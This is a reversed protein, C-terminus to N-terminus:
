LNKGLQSYGSPNPWHGGRQNYLSYDPKPEYFQDELGVLEGDQLWSLDEEYLSEILYNRLRKVVEAYESSFALNFREEPDSKLNFLQTYHGVPYYILKYDGERNMRSATAGEGIQGYLWERRENGAISIGEV